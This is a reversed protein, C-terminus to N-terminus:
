GRHPSGATLGLCFGASGGGDVAEAGEVGGGEATGPAKCSDGAQPGPVTECMRCGCSAQARLAEM